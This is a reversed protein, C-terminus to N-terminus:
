HTKPFTPYITKMGTPKFQDRPSAGQLLTWGIKLQWYTVFVVLYTERVVPLVPTPLHLLLSTLIKCIGRILYLLCVVFDKSEMWVLFDQTAELVLFYDLVRRPKKNVLGNYGDSPWTGYALWNFICLKNHLWDSSQGTLSWWYHPHSIFSFMVSNETTQM